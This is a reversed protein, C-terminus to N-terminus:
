INLVSNKKYIKERSSGKVAEIITLVANYQVSELISCFTPNNPLDGVVDSYDLHRRTFLKQMKLM